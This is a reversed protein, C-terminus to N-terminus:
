NQVFSHIFAPPHKLLNALFHGPRAQLFTGFAIHFPSKRLFALTNEQLRRPAIKEETPSNRM